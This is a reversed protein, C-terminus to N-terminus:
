EVLDCKGFAIDGRGSNEIFSFNNFIQVDFQGRFYYFKKHGTNPDEYIFDAQYDDCTVAGASSAFSCRSMTATNGTHNIKVSFMWKQLQATSYSSDSNLKKSVPCFYEEAALFAPINSLLLSLTFVLRM